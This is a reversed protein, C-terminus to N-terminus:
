KVFIKKGNKIYIGKVAHQVRRGQLDYIADDDDATQQILNIATPTDEDAKAGFTFTARKTAEHAEEPLASLDLYAKYPTLNDKNSHYFGLQDNKSSLVYMKEKDNVKTSGNLTVYGKLLNEAESYTGTIDKDTLPLLRNKVESDTVAESQVDDCELIVATKAPIPSQIETFIVTNKEEDYSNEDIPLIYAKVGDLLQYPFDTYMSTYYKGDKTFKAKTNAGFAGETQSENLLYVYWESEDATETKIVAWDSGDDCLFTSTTLSQFSQTITISTYIHYTGDANREFTLPYSNSVLNPTFSVGQATLNAYNAVNQGNPTSTRLFVTSPNGQADAADILKLSNTFTFGDQVTRDGETRKHATAKTNGYLSLFRGTKKNQIRCYISNQPDSFVAYYTGATESTATLTFPNEKSVLNTSTDTGKRWGLLVIGNAVDPYATLTVVDNEVNDANDINVSGKTPNDSAVKIWGTLEKFIAYYNFKTPNSSSESNVSESVNFSAASSANTGSESDKAWHDFVYNEEAKAYYYFTVNAEGISRQSGSATSTEQYNPNTTSSTGVYVKGGGTSGVHATANYYYRSTALAPLVAMVSLVVTSLWRKMRNSYVIKKM